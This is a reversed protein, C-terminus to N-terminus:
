FPIDDLDGGTSVPQKPTGITEVEPVDSFRESETQKPAPAKSHRVSTATARNEESAAKASSATSVAMGEVRYIRSAVLEAKKEKFGKPNDVTKMSLRGEIIVRDGESYNQAIEEALNRWGVVLLTSREEPKTGEFEVLMDTVPVGDPTHRLEPKRVITAMLICSNM